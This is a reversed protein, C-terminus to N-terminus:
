RANQSIFDTYQDVRSYFGAGNCMDVGQINDFGYSTVGIIKGNLLAPGGSDGHCSTHESDGVSFHTSTVTDIPVEIQRKTGAGGGSHSDYGYGVLKVTQGVADQGLASTSYAVPTIDTPQSLHIIGVDNPQTADGGNVYDPNPIVDAVPLDQGDGTTVTYSQGFSCHAATLVTSPAIITGSCGHGDFQVFVVAPDGPDDTGGIIPSHAQGTAEQSGDGQAACGAAFFMACLMGFGLGLKM